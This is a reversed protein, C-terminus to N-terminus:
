YFSKNRKQKFRIPHSEPTASEDEKWIKITKDTEGTIFRTGTKDFCCAQIGAEPEISGAQPTSFHNQFCYGTKYDWFCLDGQDHGTVVVDDQNMAMCNVISPPRKNFNRLFRGEPCKWVKVNDGAGSLFSYQTPHCTLARISKKHHTLVSLTKGTRLDWCRIQKDQSGTIVTPEGDQSTISRVCATHGELVYIQKKTRIDWVRTVADRGGSFLIDLTPHVNVAYVGNLHGHYSRIVKNQELDWCKVTNDLCCSFLYPHRPSMKVGMVHNTHGTLTLKMDCSALDWIKITRDASGTVFFDNSVDVDICRVWGLHSGTLVKYLKWPAHWKPKPIRSTSRLVLAQSSSATRGTSIWDKPLAGYKQLAGAHETNRIQTVQQNAVVDDIIMDANEDDHINQLVIRDLKSSTDDKRAKKSPPGDKSARKRRKRSKQQLDEMGLEEIGAYECSAKINMKSKLLHEPLKAPTGYTSLFLDKTRLFDKVFCNELLTLEKKEKEQPLKFTVRKRVNAKRDSAM